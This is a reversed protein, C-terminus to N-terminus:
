WLVTQATNCDQLICHIVGVEEEIGLLHACERSVVRDDPPTVGHQLLNSGQVPIDCPPVQLPTRSAVELHGMGSGETNCQQSPAEDLEWSYAGVVQKKAEQTRVREEDCSRGRKCGHARTGKHRM